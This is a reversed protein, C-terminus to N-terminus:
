LKKGIHITFFGTHRRCFQTIEKSRTKCPSRCICIHIRYTNSGLGSVVERLPPMGTEPDVPKHDKVLSYLRGPRPEEPVMLAVGAPSIYGCQEGESVLDKIKRM